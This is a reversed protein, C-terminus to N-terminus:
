ITLLIRTVHLPVYLVSVEAQTARGLSVVFDVATAASRPLPPLAAGLACRGLPPPPPPPPPTGIPCGPAAVCEVAVFLARSASAWEACEVVVEIAGHLPAAVWECEEIRPEVVSDSLCARLALGRQARLTGPPAVDMGRRAGRRRRRATYVGRGYSLRTDARVVLAERVEADDADALLAAITLTLRAKSAADVAFTFHRRQAGGPAVSSRLPAASPYLAVIPAALAVSVTLEYRSVAAGYGLVGVVFRPSAGHARAADTPPIDIRDPGINTSKWAYRTRSVLAAEGHAVYLDPDGMPANTQADRLARLRFTLLSSSTAEVGGPADALDLSYLAFQDACVKGCHAVGVQLRVHQM